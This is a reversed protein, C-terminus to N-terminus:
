LEVAGRVQLVRGVTQHEAREHEEELQEALTLVRVEDELGGEELDVVLLYQVDCWDCGSDKVKANVFFSPSPTLYGM